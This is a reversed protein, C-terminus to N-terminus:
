LDKFRKEMEDIANHVGVIMAGDLLAKLAEEKITKGQGDCTILIDKLQDASHTTLSLPM